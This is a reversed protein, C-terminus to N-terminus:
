ARTALGRLNIPTAIDRVNGVLTAAGTTLNISYLSSNSTAFATNTSNASVIDFGSNPSFDVGLAGVLTQTGANPPNQIFLQDTTANLTYQTTTTAGAFSNSYATADISTTAGNLNGDAQVGELAPNADVVAGTDPNLRLNQGTNSVIRLRDVTPNFDIGFSTGNLPVAFQGTGVQTAAGTQTNISYLRSTSGVGFLQGTAPRFDIGLLNEGSQLGSVNVRTVNSLSDSNFFALANNEALGVFKATSPTPAALPSSSLRLRYDTQGRQRNVQLFYSGRKLPTTISESQRGPNNSSAIQQRSGNFLTFSANNSLRDLVGRLSSRSTVRFKLFDTRNERDLSGSISRTRSLVGLNQATDFSNNNDSAM